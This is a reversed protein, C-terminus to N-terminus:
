RARRTDRTMQMQPLQMDHQRLQNSGGGENGADNRLRIPDVDWVCM